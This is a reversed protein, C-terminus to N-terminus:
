LSYKKIKYQLTRRSIGLLEAARTRNHGTKELAEVILRKESDGAITDITERFVSAGPLAFGRIEEPAHELGIVPQESVVVMREVANELERINGPWAYLMFASAVEVALEDIHKHHKIANKKMFHRALPMIDEKRERLPPVSIPVVNLRYYLDSRFTGAAVTKKLDRNTAAIIRVDIHITKVGGVREFARDQLVTLLKAQLHLPLEGIEDLFLTGRDALEFRGPKSTVAGSFAGKEYGFM